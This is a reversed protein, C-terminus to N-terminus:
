PVMFGIFIINNQRHNWSDFTNTLDNICWVGSEFITILYSCEHASHSSTEISSISFLIWFAINRSFHSFCDSFNPQSSMLPWSMSILYHKSKHMYNKLDRIATTLTFYLTKFCIIKLFLNNFNNKNSKVIYTLM